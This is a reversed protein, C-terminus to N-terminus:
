AVRCLRSRSTKSRLIGELTKLIEKERLTRLFRKATSEPIGAQAIFDAANFIPRSFIFDLARISHPSRTEATILRKKDNYLGLIVQAKEVNTTGRSLSFTPYRVGQFVYLSTKM